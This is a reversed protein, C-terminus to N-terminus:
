MLLLIAEEEEEEIARAMLLALEAGIAASRYVENIKQRAERVVEKLEPADSTIRPTPLAIPKKGVRRSVQVTTQALEQAHRAAMDRARELLAQAHSPSDVEFNQGDIEVFYRKRKTSGAPTVASAM